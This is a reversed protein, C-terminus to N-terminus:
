LVIGFRGRITGADGGSMLRADRMARITRVVDDFSRCGAMINAQRM